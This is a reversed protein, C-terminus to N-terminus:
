VLEEAKNCDSSFRLRSVGYNYNSGVSWLDHVVSSQQKGEIREETVNADRIQRWLVQKQKELVGCYYNFVHSYCKIRGVRWERTERERPCEAKRVHRHQLPHLLM